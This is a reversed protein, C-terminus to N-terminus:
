NRESARLESLLAAAEQVFAIDHGEVLAGFAPQLIECAKRSGGTVMLARALSTAARLGALKTGQSEAAELAMRYCQLAEAHNSKSLTNLLEGRLRLMEPFQFRADHRQAIDIALEIEELGEDPRGADALAEGLLALFYPLGMEAGTAQTGTVGERMRAIGEESRGLRALAWGLLLLGQSRTLPLLYEDSIAVAEEAWHRAAVPECRLVHAVGRGWCAITTTLPHDLQRALQVADDLIELARDPQGCICHVLARFTRCCVGPDHGSYVYTLAHDREREYLSLGKESHSLAEAYEGMLFSNTWFLHHTEIQVGVDGSRKALAVCREGLRRATASQGGIMRYQGEGRLAVFLEREDGLEQSLARARTFAELVEANAWGKAAMTAVGIAKRYDLERRYRESADPLAGILDLGQKLYGIAQHHASRHMAKGASRHLYHVAKSQEGAGLAHHALQEVHEDLRAAYRTEILEVLQRHLARRRERVVSAYAVHHTLAHKFSYRPEPLLRTQYLFEMAQLSALIEHMSEADVGAIPQLLEVPVDQGIVAATQLLSKQAADLRDIRAALVAHVTSPIEVTDIARAPRYEGPRGSLAGADVLARVSEELFLPTGGARDILLRRLEGLGQDTGLLAQLLLDAKDPGLPNLRLQTFYSKALWPHRYEPRHTLLLLVRCAALHDVLHELVAQTGPDVWHLDEVVLMVPGAESRRMLLATVAHMTRQHRQSPSLTPWQRDRSPLDLVGALADEMPMLAPDLLEIERHLKAAAESQTDSTAIGFWARLLQAIAFYTPSTEHSVTGTELVTCDKACPAHVFEHVLRSKGIGAEGVIAAIRGTGAAAEHFLQELRAMEADRGVFRALQRTSRADWRMRLPAMARLTFLAVPAGAHQPSDAVRADVTVFGEVRRAVDATIGIEGAALASDLQAALRAVAGIADYHHSREDGIARVVVDGSHVVIRVDRGEIAPSAIADRMAVAASCARLAHDEQAVPAGFLATVGDERIQSITGGFRVAIAAIAHLLPDVHELAAEPDPDDFAPSARVRACLLTLQKREAAAPMSASEPIAAAPPAWSPEDITHVPANPNRAAPARGIEAALQRLEEGPAIALEQDLLRACAEYQRLASERRGAQLYARVLACQGSELLPDLAVLREGVAIARDHRESCAHHGALELLAQVANVHYRRREAALWHEFREERLSFGDLLAGRYLAVAAELTEASRLQALRAFQLADVEVAQADLTVSDADARILTEASPLARRLSSLAQRLSARAQEEASRDWFTDALHERSRTMGPSLALYALLARCKRAPFVVPTRVGALEVDLSGLVRIVLHDM